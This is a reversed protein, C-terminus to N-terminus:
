KNKNNTKNRLQIKSREPPPPLGVFSCLVPPAGSQPPPTDSVTAVYIDNKLESTSAKTNGEVETDIVETNFIELESIEDFNKIEDIRRLLQKIDEDSRNEYIEEPSKPCTIIINKALLQRSGGKNEIRYEYRDLIRLLEHFTCFDGRFDDIIVNEHADYGEWWKLNKGSVWPENLEEFATKTKGVGTSGYYWKVNTKWTRPKEKYKLLIEGMKASQYSKAINLIDKMGGHNEVIEKIEDLDTRKGQKPKEGKEFLIEEKSCYKINDQPSGKCIEIHSGEPLIKKVRKFTTANKFMIFGQHHHTNNKEGYENGVIIYKCEIDYLESGDPNNKTFCWSRARIETMNFM